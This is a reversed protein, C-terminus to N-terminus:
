PLVPSTLDASRGRETVGQVCRPARALRCDRALAQGDGAVAVAGLACPGDCGALQGGEYCTVQWFVARLALRLAGPGRVAFHRSGTGPVTFYAGTRIFVFVSIGFARTALM